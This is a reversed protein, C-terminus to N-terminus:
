LNHVEDRDESLASWDREDSAPSAIDGVIQGTGKMAGMWHAAGATPVVPSAEATDDIKM